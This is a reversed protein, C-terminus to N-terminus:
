PALPRVATLKRSALVTHIVTIRGDADIDCRTVYRPAIKGSGGLREVVLAPLGNLLRIAHRAEGGYGFRLVGACFRAVRSRGAVIKRAAKFEGNADNVVRVGESLLAEIAPVDHTALTRLFRVLAAGSREVLEPSPRCRDRDYPELARRARHHTTKVCAESLDLAAATEQVSYDFVDRLLLVARQRPTLAELAVLFAFSASELLDYRHETGDKGPLEFSPPEPEAEIPSPLWPGDYPRRKRRRLVDRGLNLAVRTLWPRVPEDTRAPPRELARVFTEQVIDDADAASGTLRYSLAWLFREHERYSAGLYSTALAADPASAGRPDAAHQPSRMTM